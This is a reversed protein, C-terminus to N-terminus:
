FLKVYFTVPNFTNFVNKKKYVANVKERSTTVTGVLTFQYTGPIASNFLLNNLEDYIVCNLDQPVSIYLFNYGSLSYTTIPYTRLTSIDIEDWTFTSLLSSSSNLSYSILRNMDDSVTLKIKVPCKLNNYYYQIYRPNDIQTRLLLCSQYLVDYNKNYIGWTLNDLYTNYCNIFKELLKLM